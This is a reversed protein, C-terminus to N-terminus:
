DALLFGGVILQPSVLLNLGLATLGVPRVAEQEAPLPGATLRVESQVDPDAGLHSLAGGGGVLFLVGVIVAAVPLQDRVAHDTFASWVVAILVAVAWAVASAVVVQRLIARLSVGRLM